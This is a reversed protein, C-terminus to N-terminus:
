EGLFTRIEDLRKTAEKRGMQYVRELEYPDKETRRIDPNYPPCIVISQGSDAREYIETMQRNYMEHRDNYAKALAPYDKYISNILFSMHRNKKRYGRAQTLVIVNRDYGKDEMFRYPVSDAIAGDLYLRGNIEVPKSVFPMSASARMWEIDESGCDSCLHFVCLGTRIDTAGIYFEMPNDKFTERDIVDLKDPIEHYCFENEYLDGSKILSKITGYRPDKSYKKNYRVVRGPQKSKINCGFTAGASIGVAGDFVIDNEMFVDIVGATFMGRMAGGELILGKKYM